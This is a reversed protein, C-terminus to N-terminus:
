SSRSENMSLQPDIQRLDRTIAIAKDVKGAIQANHPHHLM